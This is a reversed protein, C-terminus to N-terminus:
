PGGHEGREKGAAVARVVEAGQEGVKAVSRVFPVTVLVPCRDRPPAREADDPARGRVRAAGGAGHRPPQGGGRLGPEDGGEAAPGERKGDGAHAHAPAAGDEDDREVARRRQVEVQEGIERGPGPGRRELVREPHPLHQGGLLDARAEERREPAQDLARAGLDLRAVRGVPTQECEQGEGPHEEEVEHLGLAPEVAPRIEQAGLQVVREGCAPVEVPADEV